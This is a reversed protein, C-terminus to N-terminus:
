ATYRRKRIVYNLFGFVLILLVPLGVNIIQWKTKEARIKTADLLRMSFEKGRIEILGNDDILYDICNLLFKKNAFTIRSHFDYGTPFTIGRTSVYNRMIDGDAIVIQKGWTEPIFKGSTFKKQYLYSSKFKGELLIGSLKIGDKMTKLFNPDRSQMFVNVFEISAPAQVVKTNPSSALLPIYNLSDRVRAKLTAPFQAWVAGVNKTIIHGSNDNTFLPFFMFDTLQQQEGVKIPVRNCIRDELLDNNVSVGYSFLGANINELERPMAVVVSQKQFSDIEIQVPDIMWIIRGGKMLFQDILYLEAPSYDTLPKVVMLLDAQNLRNQLGNLLIQAASDPSKMMREIFPRGAEPDNVNLNVAELNYYKGLENAFSGVEQGIMEGNGDAVVIKKTKEQVSQRLGNAMEYEINDIAIKVNTEPDKAPDYQMFNISITKGAYEMDAGPIVYKIRTEDSNEQDVDRGPEIGKESFQKLVDSLESSSIGKLPDIVEIEIKNGSAQRFEYAMDRIENRLQKFKASLEGDLYLKFYMKEKLQGALKKSTESLTYRKEATLDFRTYYINGLVNIVVIVVLVVALEIFSQTKYLRSKKM